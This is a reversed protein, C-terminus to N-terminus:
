VAIGRSRNAKEIFRPDPWQRKDHPLHVRGLSAKFQSLGGSLRLGHLRSEKVPNLRMEYASDLFILGM